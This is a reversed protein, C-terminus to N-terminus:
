FQVLEKPYYYESRLDNSRIVSKVVSLNTKFKDATSVLQKPIKQFVLGVM